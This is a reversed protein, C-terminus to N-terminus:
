YNFPPLAHVSWGDRQYSTTPTSSQDGRFETKLDDGDRFDYPIYPPRPSLLTPDYTRGKEKKWEMGDIHICHLCGFCWRVWHKRRSTQEWSAPVLTWAWAAAIVFIIAYSVLCYHLLQYDSFCCDCLVSAPSVALPSLDYSRDHRVALAHLCHMNWAEQYHYIAICCRVEYICFLLTINYISTTNESRRTVYICM